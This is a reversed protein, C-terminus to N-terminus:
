SSGGSPSAGRLKLTIGQERARARADEQHLRFTEPEWIQFNRGQGVFAAMDTIGAHSVLGEPLMVRGEGDFALPATDAFITASLDDHEESFLALEDASESIEEMRSMDLAEIAPLRYSRFAVFGNFSQGALAARFAAPVSVRGKKDIKKTYTSLFLAMEAGLAEEKRGEGGADMPATLRAEFSSPSIQSLM